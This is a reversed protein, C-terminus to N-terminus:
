RDRPEDLRISLLAQRTFQCTPHSSTVGGRGEAIDPSWWKGGPFELNKKKTTAATSANASPTEELTGIGLHHCLERVDSAEDVDRVMTGISVPIGQDTLAKAQSMGTWAHSWYLNSFTKSPDARQPVCLMAYGGDRAPCLTAGADKSNGAARALGTVMDDLPLIPADMGLFIVGGGGNNNSDDTSSLARVRVLADELKAGLDHSRLDNSQTSSMMPLLHWQQGPSADCDEESTTTLGLDDLIAEMRERGDLTGPAFLLVKRVRKLERCGDITRLVDSLMSKALRVSGEEGLLPILRTKSKGPIPCKAVVVISGGVAPFCDNDISSIRPVENTGNEVATPNM